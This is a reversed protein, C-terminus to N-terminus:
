PIQLPRIGETAFLGTPRGEATAQRRFTYRLFFGAGVDQYNNRNSSRVFGGGYWRERFRYSFEGRVAYEFGTTVARPYYGCAYTLAGAGCSVFSGQLASDLPFFAAADQRFSRVGASAEVDYHFNTDGGGRVTVPVAGAFYYAPSFYGGQGYSLGYENRQYHMGEFLGGL